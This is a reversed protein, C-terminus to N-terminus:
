FDLPEIDLLEVDILGAIALPLQSTLARASDLDAVELTLVAGPGDLTYAATLAGRERLARLAAMEADFYAPFTAAADVGEAARCIVLVNM